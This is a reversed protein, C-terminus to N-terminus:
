NTRLIANINGFHMDKLKKPVPCKSKDIPEIALPHIFREGKTELAYTWEEKVWKSKYANRSWVLFLVDSQDIKSRVEEYWQQGGKLFIFDVFCEIDPCLGEMGQKLMLVADRDKSSYSFFAKKIDIRTFENKQKAEDLNVICKLTTVRLGYVLVDVALVITSKPYNSPIEGVLQSCHYDKTWIFEDEDFLDPINPSYLRVTIHSGEKVISTGSRKEQLKGDGEALAKQVISSFEPEYMYFDLLFDNGKQISKPSLVSYQVTYANKERNEKKISRSNETIKEEKISRSNEAIKEEFDRQNSEKVKPFGWLADEDREEEAFIPGETPACVSSTTSLPEEKYALDLKVKNNLIAKKIEKKTFYGEGILYDSIKRYIDENFPSDSVESRILECEIMNRAYELASMIAELRKQRLTLVLMKSDEINLDAEAIEKCSVIKNYLDNILSDFRAMTDKAKQRSEIQRMKKKIENM